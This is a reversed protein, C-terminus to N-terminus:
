VIEVTWRVLANAQASDIHVGVAELEICGLQAEVLGGRSGVSHAITEVQHKPRLRIREQNGVLGDLSSGGDLAVDQVTKQAIRNRHSFAQGDINPLKCGKDPCLHKVRNIVPIVLLANQKGPCLREVM